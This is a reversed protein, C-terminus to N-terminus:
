FDKGKYENLVVSIKTPDAKQKLLDLNCWGQANTHENLFAVFEESKIGLSGIVFEPQSDKKTKGIVGKAFTKDAMDKEGNQKDLHNILLEQERENLQKTSHKNYEFSIYRHVYERNFGNISAVTYIRKHNVVM